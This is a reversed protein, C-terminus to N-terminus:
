KNPLLNGEIASITVIIKRIQLYLFLLDNVSIVAFFFCRAAAGGFVDYLQYFVTPVAPIGLLIRLIRFATHSHNSLLILVDVHKERADLFEQRFLLGFAIM